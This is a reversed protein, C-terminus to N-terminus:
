SPWRRAKSSSLLSHMESEVRGDVDLVDRGAEDAARAREALHAWEEVELARRM